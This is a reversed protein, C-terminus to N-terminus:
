WFFKAVSVGTNAIASYIKHFLTPHLYSHVAQQVDATTGNVHAMTQATQDSAARLNALTAPIAPDAVLKNLQSTTAELTAIETSANTELPQLGAITKDTTELTKVAAAAIQQQSAALGDTTTKLSVLVANANTMTQSIQANWKVLAAREEASAKRAEMATLGAELILRHSEDLSLNVKAIVGALQKRSEVVQSRLELAFVTLTVCLTTVALCLVIKAGLLIRNM